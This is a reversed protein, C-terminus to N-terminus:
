NWMSGTLQVEFHKKCSTVRCLNLQLGPQVSVAVLVTGSAVPGTLVIANHALLSGAEASSHPQVPATM